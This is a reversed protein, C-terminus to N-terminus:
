PPQVSRLCFIQQVPVLSDQICIRMIILGDEDNMYVIALGSDHEYGLSGWEIGLNGYGWTAMDPSAQPPAPDSTLILDPNHTLFTGFRM